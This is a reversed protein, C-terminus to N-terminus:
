LAEGPGPGHQPGRGRRGQMGPRTPREDARILGDGDRDLRNFEEVTLEPRVVQLEALSWAGDGDTDVQPLPGRPRAAFRERRQDREAATLRGDGDADLRAFQARIMALRAAEFEELTVAGDGNTDGRPQAIVAGAAVLGLVGLCQWVKM